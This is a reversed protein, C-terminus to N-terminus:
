SKNTLEYYRNDYNWMEGSKLVGEMELSNLSREVRNKIFVLVDNRTVHDPVINRKKKEEHLTQLIDLTFGKMDEESNITAM